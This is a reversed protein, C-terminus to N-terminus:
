QLPWLVFKFLPHVLWGGKFTTGGGGMHGLFSNACIDAYFCTQMTKYVEAERESITRTVCVTRQRLTEINVSM